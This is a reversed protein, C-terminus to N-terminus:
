RFSRFNFAPSFLRGHPLGAEFRHSHVIQEDRPLREAELREGVQTVLATALLTDIPDLQTTVRLGLHQKPSLCQRRAGTRWVDLDANALRPGLHDWSHRIAAIEFAPPVIDSDGQSELHELAFDLASMDLRFAM